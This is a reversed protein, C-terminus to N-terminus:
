DLTEIAVLTIIKLAKRRADQANKAQSIIDYDKNDSIYLLAYSQLGEKRSYYYFTSTELDVGLTSSRQEVFTKVHKINHLVCPVSATEGEVYKEGFQNLVARLRKLSNQNPEVIQKAPDDVFVLGSKDIVKIPVILTGIPLDKGGMSGALFLKEVGGDKLLRLIELTTAGGYVNFVLLYERGKRTAFSYKVWNGKIRSRKDFSRRIWEKREPVYSGAYILCREPLRKRGFVVESLRGM